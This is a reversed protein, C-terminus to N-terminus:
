SGAKAALSGLVRLLEASQFPKRIIPHSRHEEPLVDPSYGTMFLFPIGRDALTQAVPYIPSGGLNVDLLAVDIRELGAMELAKPLNSFPGLVEAGEDRLIEALEEAIMFEDEVLAIRIGQL